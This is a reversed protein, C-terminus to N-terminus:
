VIYIYSRSVALPLSRRVIIRYNVFSAVLVFLFLMTELM